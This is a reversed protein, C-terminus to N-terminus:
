IVITTHAAAHQAVDVLRLIHFAISYSTHMLYPMAQKRM